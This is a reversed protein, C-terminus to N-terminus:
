KQTGQMLRKFATYDSAKVKGSLTRLGYLESFLGVDQDAFFFTVPAAHRDTALSALLTSRHTNDPTGYETFWLPRSPFQEQELLIAANRQVQVFRGLDGYPHGGIADVCKPPLKRLMWRLYNEPDRAPSLGASIILVDHNLERIASSVSALTRAYAEASDKQTRWMSPWGFPRGFNPENFVELASIQKGYRRFLWTAAAAAHDAFRGPEDSTWQPAHNMLIMLRMQPNASALAFVRDTFAADFNGHSRNFGDWRLEIRLWTVGLDAADGWGQVQDPRFLQLGIEGRPQTQTSLACAANAVSAGLLLAAFAKAVTLFACVFPGLFFGSM